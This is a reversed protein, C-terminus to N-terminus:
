SKKNMSRYNLPSIGVIKKFKRSFYSQDMVNLAEAIEAVSMNTDMLLAKARMIISEEIWQSVPKETHNKVMKNLHNPTISFRDAYERVSLLPKSEDFIMELFANSITDKLPDQPAHIEDGIVSFASIFFSKILSRNPSERRIETLIKSFLTDLLVVNEESLPIQFIASVSNSAFLSEAKFLDCNVFSSHFGGMYGIAEKYYKVSFAGGQPVMLMENARVLFKDGEGNEILAEGQTLFVFSNVMSRIMPTPCPMKHCSEDLRRMMFPEERVASMRGMHGSKEADM